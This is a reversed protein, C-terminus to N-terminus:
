ERFSHVGRRALVKRVVLYPIVAALLALLFGVGKISIEEFGTRLINQLWAIFGVSLGLAWELQYRRIFELWPVRGIVWDFGLAFVAIFLGTITAQMEDPFQVFGQPAACAALAFAFVIFLCIKFITKM